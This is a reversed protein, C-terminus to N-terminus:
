DVYMRLNGHILLVRLNTCIYQKRSIGHLFTNKVDLQHIPWSNLVSIILVMRITALKVIPSSTDECDFGVTQSKGNVVLRAKYRKLVGDSMFKYKFLWMFRIIPQNLPRPVLEWM